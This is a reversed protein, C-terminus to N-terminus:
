RSGVLWITSDVDGLRSNLFRAEPGKDVVGLFFRLFEVKYVPIIM